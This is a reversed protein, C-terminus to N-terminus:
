RGQSPHRSTRSRVRTATGGAGVGGARRLRSGPERRALGLMELEFLAANLEAATLGSAAAVEDFLRPVRGIAALARSAAAGLSAPAARGRPVEHEPGDLGLLALVDRDSRIVTALGDHLLGLPAAGLPEYIDWPIAGIPRGMALAARATILAGSTKNGQVVITADTIAAILHNRTSFAGKYTSAGPALETMLGLSSALREQLRAHSRPFARDLPTGLVAGSRGGAELAGEHAAADIGRALGSVVAIGRKALAQALERAVRVGDITAARSGVISVAHEADWPGRVYVSPLPRHRRIGSDHADALKALDRLASPYGPDDPAAVRASGADQVLAGGDVM